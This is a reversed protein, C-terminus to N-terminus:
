RREKLAAALAFAIAHHEICKTTMWRWGEGDFLIDVSFDGAGHSVVRISQKQKFEDKLLRVADRADTTDAFFDTQPIDHPHLPRAPLTWHGRCVMCDYGIVREGSVDFCHSIPGDCKQGPKWGAFVNLIDNAEAETPTM